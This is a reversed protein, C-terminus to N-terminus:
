EDMDKIDSHTIDHKLYIDFRLDLLDMPSDGFANKKPRKM